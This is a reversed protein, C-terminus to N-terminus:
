WPLLKCTSTDPFYWPTPLLTHFALAAWLPSVAGSVQQSCPSPISCHQAPLMTWWQCRCRHCRSHHQNCSFIPRLLLEIDFRGSNKQKDSPPESEYQMFSIDTEVHKDAPWGMCESGSTRKDWFRLHVQFQGKLIQFSKQYPQRGALAKLPM